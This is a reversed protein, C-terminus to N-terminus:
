QRNKIFSKAMENIQEINLRTGSKLYAILESKSFYLRGSKKMVPLEGRQCKSYITSVKLSLLEAAENVNLISDNEKEIPEPAWSELLREISDLRMHLGRVDNPLNDFTPKEM